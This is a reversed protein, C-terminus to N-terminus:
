SDEGPTQKTPQQLTAEILLEIEINGSSDFSYIFIKSGLLYCAFIILCAIGYLIRKSKNQVGGEKGM